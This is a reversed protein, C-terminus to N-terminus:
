SNVNPISTRQIRFQFCTLPKFSCFNCFFCLKDFQQVSLDDNYIPTGEWFFASTVLFKVNINNGHIEARLLQKRPFVFCFPLTFYCLCVNNFILINLEIKFPIPFISKRTGIHFRPSLILYIEFFKWQSNVQCFNRLASFQDIGISISTKEPFFVSFPFFLYNQLRNRQQLPIQVAIPTTVSRLIKTM